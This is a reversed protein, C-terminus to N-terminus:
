HAARRTLRVGVIRFGVRSVIPLLVSAVITAVVVARIQGAGGLVMRLVAWLALYLAFTGLLGLLQAVSGGRIELDGGGLLLSTLIWFFCIPVLWEVM